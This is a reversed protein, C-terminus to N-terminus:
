LAPQVSGRHLYCRSGPIEQSRTSTLPAPLRIRSVFGCGLYEGPFANRESANAAAHAVVQYMESYGQGECETSFLVFGLASIMCNFFMWILLCSLFPFIVHCFLFLSFAM